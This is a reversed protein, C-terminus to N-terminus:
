PRVSKKRRFLGIALLGSGVLSLTIPEPVANSSITGQLTTSGSQAGSTPNVIISFPTITFFTPGFNGSTANNTGTGLQM